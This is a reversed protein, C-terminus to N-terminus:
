NGRRQLDRCYDWSSGAIQAKSASKPKWNSVSPILLPTM